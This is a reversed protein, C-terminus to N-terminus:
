EGERGLAGGRLASAVAVRESRDLCRVVVVGAVAGITHSLARVSLLGGRLAGAAWAAHLTVRLQAGFRRTAFLLAVFSEPLGARLLGAEVQTADLDCTLWSLWLAATIVRLGITAARQLPFTQALQPSWAASLLTAAFVAALLPLLARLRQWTARRRPATRLLKPLALAGLGALWLPAQLSLMAVLALAGVLWRARTM